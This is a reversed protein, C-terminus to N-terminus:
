EDKLGVEQAVKRALEILQLAIEHITDTSKIVKVSCGWNSSDASLLRGKEAFQAKDLIHDFQM